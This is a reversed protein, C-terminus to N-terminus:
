RPLAKTLVDAVMDRTSIYEIKDLVKERVHHYAVDIHKTKVHFRPNRMLAISGTNDGKLDVAEIDGGLEQIMSRLWVAECAAQALAMYEAETSLQATTSQKKALWLIAGGGVIFVYVGTWKQDDRDGGWDANSSGVLSSGGGLRLEFNATGKLYRLMRRAAEWHPQGPNNMFKCLVSCPYAFDPWTAIMPYLLAGVLERYPVGRMDEGDEESSSCQTDSLATGAVMPTSVMTAEQLGFKQVLSSVFQEQWITVTHTTMCRTFAIGLTRTLNGSGSLGYRRKFQEELEIVRKRSGASVNNNVWFVASASDDPGWVKCYVCQDSSSKTWGLTKVM